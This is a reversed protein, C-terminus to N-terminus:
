GRQHQSLVHKVRNAADILEDVCALLHEDTASDGGNEAITNLCDAVAYSESQGSEALQCIVTAAAASLGAAPTLNSM